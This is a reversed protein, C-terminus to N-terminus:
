MAGMSPACGDNCPVSRSLAAGRGQVLVNIRGFYTLTWAMEADPNNLWGRAARVAGVALLLDNEGLVSSVDFVAL